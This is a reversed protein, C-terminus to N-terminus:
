SGQPGNGGVRRLLRASKAGLSGNAHASRRSREMEKLVRDPYEIREHFVGTLIRTFTRAIVDLDKLTLDAEDLQGDTLRDKIIGRVVQEIAEPTPNKLTRSTAECADALMVIAAEKSQPRPGDYRFDEELVGEGTDLDRAKEYFYRIVTTGHHQQIFDRVRAPVGHERALEVGDRVHSAIILASLSPSLKDHPNEAGFQNDIFFYPRKLKGVDHYIAGVRALLSNGGVAESAAEALNGVMVSHQYTGPAEVLLKRLLPQNPNTLEILRMATVLGFPAELFPTLGVALMAAFGGDVFSWFLQHWVPAASLISGDLVDLGLLTVLNVLGVLLGVRVVDYRNSLRSVGVVGALGGFFAVLATVLDSGALIGGVLALVGTCVVALGSDALAAITIAATPVIVYDAGPVMSLAACAIVAAAMMSGAIVLTAPQTLLRRRFGWLYGALAGVAVVAFLLGGALPAPDFGDNLLGLQQLLAIDAATVPVNQKLIQEGPWIRVPQVAAMKLQRNRNTEAWDPFTNPRVLARGLDTLFLRDSPNTVLTGALEAVNNRAADLSQTNDYIGEGQGGMTAILLSDTDQQLMALSTAGSTLVAGWDAPPLGIPIWSAAAQERAKLPMVADSALEDLTEFDRNATASAQRYVAPNLTYSIPVSAAAAARARATAARDIVGFPAYVNQPALAGVTVSVRQGYLSVALTSGVCLWVLLAVLFPTSLGSVRGHAHMFDRFGQWWEDWPRGM